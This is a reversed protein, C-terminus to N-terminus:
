LMFKNSICLKICSVFLFLNFYKYISVTLYSSTFNSLVCNKELLNMVKQFFYFDVKDNIENLEKQLYSTLNRIDTFYPSLFAITQPKM